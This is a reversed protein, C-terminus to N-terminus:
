PLITWPNIFGGMYRAEFHLHAGTSNGTSGSYGIIGGQSVSQGCNVSVSSMHAYLTQYGNGHDVMVMNGYGGYAGGAFVVVGSDAAYIHAGEGAGIDIALHGEWYDNGSLKHNGAPWVFTGSGYAGEYGGECTGPGLVSSIVGARGRPITPIVWSRFERHGGPVMVKTGAPITPNTLDFENGLWALLEDANAEFRAAVGEVTDGEQWEYYVGDIPPILLEMGLSILDPNDNLQANAWLLTHPKVNYRIAIEFLSDGTEVTHTIIETSPRDPINTDLLLRRPVARAAETHQYAPIVPQSNDGAPIERSRTHSFVQPDEFVPSSVEAQAAQVIAGRGFKGVRWGMYIALAVLALAVVWAIASLFREGRGAASTKTPSM